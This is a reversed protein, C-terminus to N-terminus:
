TYKIILSKELTPTQCISMEMHIKALGNRALLKAGDNGKIGFKGFACTPFVTNILNRLTTICLLPM